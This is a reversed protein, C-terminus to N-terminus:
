GRVIMEIHDAFSNALFSSVQASQEAAARLIGAVEYWSMCFVNETGCAGSVPNRGDLTLYVVKWPRRMGARAAAIRCYRDIQDPQEGADIKVEVIMLFEPSDILIDVRNGTMGDPSNECLVRVSSYSEPMESLSLFRKVLGAGIGHSAKPDLYWALVRSIRLEDRKLGAIEWVNEIPQWSGVPDRLNNALHLVRDAVPVDIDKVSPIRDVLCTTRVLALANHLRQIDNKTINL